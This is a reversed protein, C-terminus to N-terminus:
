SWYLNDGTLMCLLFEIRSYEESLVFALFLSSFVFAVAGGLDAHLVVATQGSGERSVHRAKFPLLIQVCLCLPLRPLNRPWASAAGWGGRVTVKIQETKLKLAWQAASAGEPYLSVPHPRLTCTSLLQPSLFFLLLCSATTCVHVTVAMNESLLVAKHVTDSYM